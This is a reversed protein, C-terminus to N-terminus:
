STPAQMKSLHVFQYCINHFQAQTYVVNIHIYSPTYECWETKMLICMCFMYLNTSPAM